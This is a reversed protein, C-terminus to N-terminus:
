KDVGTKTMTLQYWNGEARYQYDIAVGDVVTSFAEQPQAKLRKTVDMIARNFCIHGKQAGAFAYLALQILGTPRAGFAAGGDAEICVSQMRGNEDTEYAFPPVNMLLFTNTDRSTWVGDRTLKGANQTSLQSASRNFNAAFQEVTIGGCYRPGIAALSGCVGATLMVVAALITALGRKWGFPKATQESEGEWDLPEEKKEACCSKYLRVWCYIPIGAGLGRWILRATRDLGESYRLKAGSLNRVSLGLLRKGLTTGTKQLLLPELLLMTLLDFRLVAPSRPDAGYACDVVALEARVRRIPDAPYLLSSETYDGSFLLTQKELRFEYWVSGPCHGSRGWRLKLGMPLQFSRLPVTNPLSFPLQDFTEESAAVTGSFGQEILWPLAGTHDAHSHTLFVYQLSRIQEPTLKPYPQKSGAMKGCDVLFCLEKGRVYFCNRGHEGVGGALFVEM